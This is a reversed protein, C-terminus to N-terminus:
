DMLHTASPIASTRIGQPISTTWTRSSIATLVIYDNAIHKDKGKHYSGTNDVNRIIIGDYDAESQRSASKGEKYGSDKAKKAAAELARDFVEVLGEMDEMM